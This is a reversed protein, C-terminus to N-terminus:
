VVMTVLALGNGGDIVTVIVYNAHWFYFQVKAVTCVDLFTKVAKWLMKFGSGDNIIFPKHLTEPYYSNDIKQIEMFLYMAPKTIERVFVSITQVFESRFHTLFNLDRVLCSFILFFNEGCHSPIVHSDIGRSRIAKFAAEISAELFEHESAKWIEEALAVADAGFGRESHKLCSLSPSLLPLLPLSMFPPPPLPLPPPSM